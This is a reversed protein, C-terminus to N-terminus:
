SRKRGVYLGHIFMEDLRGYVSQHRELWAHSEQLDICQNEMLDGLENFPAGDAPVNSIREIERRGFLRDIDDPRHFTIDGAHEDSECGDYRNVYSAAFVGHNRLVRLCEGVCVDTENERLHYLPGMCLVVDFSGDQFRSLDRADGVQASVRLDQLTRLRSNLIEIHKPVLDLATVSCGRGAYYISYRGTGAGVDLVRSQSEIAQNLVYTTAVFETRHRDLRSDEDYRDTYFGTIRDM